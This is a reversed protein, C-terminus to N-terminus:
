DANRIGEPYDPKGPYLTRGSGKGNIVEMVSGTTRNTVAWVRGTHTDRYNLGDRVYRPAPEGVNPVQPNAGLPAIERHDAQCQWEHCVPCPLPEPIASERPQSGDERVKEADAHSPSPTSGLAASHIQSSTECGPCDSPDHTDPSIPGAVWGSDDPARSILRHKGLNRLIDKAAKNGVNLVDGIVSATVPQPSSAVVGYVRAGRSGLTNGNWSRSRPSMATVYEEVTVNISDVRLPLYLGKRTQGDVQDMDTRSSPRQDGECGGDVQVGMGGDVQVPPLTFAKTNSPLVSSGGLLERLNEASDTGTIEVLAGADVLRRIIRTANHGAAAPVYREVETTSLFCRSDGTRLITELALALAHEASHRAQPKIHQRVNDLAMAARYEM